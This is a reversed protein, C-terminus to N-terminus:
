RASRHLSWGLVFPMGLYAARTADAGVLTMIGGHMPGQGEGLVPEVCDDIVLGAVRFARLYDSILHPHNRVFPTQGDDHSFFAQGDFFTALPHFDTLVIRGGPRVLRALTAIPDAVDVFHTLALSCVVLDFSADPLDGGHDGCLDGVLFSAGPVKARAIALMEPSQDLGTVSKAEAALWALHRGTGTCADLVDGWPGPGVLAKMIPEEFLILPNDAGDYSSSWMRYGDGADVERVDVGARHLSSSEVNDLDALTARIGDLRRAVEADSASFLRRALALGEVAIRMEGVRLHRSTSSPVPNPTAHPTSVM